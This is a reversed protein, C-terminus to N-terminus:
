EEKKNPMEGEELAKVNDMNVGIPHKQIWELVEKRNFYLSKGTPKYHPIAMMRTLRYIQSKSANLLLCVEELDISREDYLHLSRNEWNEQHISRGSSLRGASDRTEEIPWRHKAVISIRTRQHGNHTFTSHEVFLFVGAVM